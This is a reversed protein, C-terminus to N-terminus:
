GNLCKSMNELVQEKKHATIRKQLSKRKPPCKRDRYRECAGESKQM